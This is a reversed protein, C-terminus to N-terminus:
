LDTADLQDIIKTASDDFIHIGPQGSTIPSSSDTKTGVSSGNRYATLTTTSTGTAGISLTDGIVFATVSIDTGLQSFSGATLKYIQITESNSLYAIYGNGGSSIRVGASVDVNIALTITSKQNAAFSPSNVYYICDANAHAVGEAVTAVTQLTGNGSFSCKSWTGGNSLPNETRNFDDTYTAPGAGGVVFNNSIFTNLLM